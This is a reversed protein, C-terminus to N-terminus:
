KEFKKGQFNKPLCRQHCYIPMQIPRNNDEILIDYEPEWKKNGHYYM